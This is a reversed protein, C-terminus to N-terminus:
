QEGRMNVNINGSSYITSSIYPKVNYQRYLRNYIFDAERQAEIGRYADFIGQRKADLKSLNIGLQKKIQNKADESNGYYSNIKVVNNITGINIDNYKTENTLMQQHRNWITKLVNSLRANSSQLIRKREDPNKVNALDELFAADQENVMKSFQHINERGTMNYYSKDGSLFKIKEIEDHVKTESKYESSTSVRDLLMNIPRQITGLKSLTGLMNFSANSNMYIENAYSNFRGASLLNNASYNYFPEVFSSIPSDWDRFFPSQVTEVSWESYVSKNGFIKEIAIDSPTNKFKKFPTYFVSALNVNKRRYGSNNTNLKNNVLNSDIRFFDGDKDIGVSYTADNSIQFNYTQGVKFSVDLENMLRLAKRRGYRSTLENYDEQVTDLKYRKGGSMFEYPSLKKDIKLSINTVDEVRKFNEIYDRKGYENAYGLSEFYYAKEREDFTNIKNNMVQKLEEFQASGPAIMSLVRLKKLDENQVKQSKDFTTGPLIYNGFDWSLYPNNGKKFYEPFWDPLKQELPNINIMGLANPDDVLRRIPETMGFLDGLQLRDYKSYTGIDLDISSLNIENNYPNTAGFINETAKTVGYGAIGAFTKLDEAADFFAKVFKNPENFEIYKPSSPDNPNYKPNIMLNKDVRWKDEGIYQTPKIVEGVTANILGGFVPLEGFLQETKPYVAGYKEFAEREEKYPDLIYWPYKTIALDQRFFKEIKNSYIGSDKHQAIYLLHPRYQRFEEGEASQRGATFWWRNNKVEIPKGNFYIDIMESPSTLLDLSNGITNNIAGPLANDIGRLLPLVGTIDLAYQLGVRGAAITKAATGSIGNGIIPVEDPIFADSASDIALAGTGIALLPLYRYKVFNKMQHYATKGLQQEPIREVGIFELANQLQNIPTKALINFHSDLHDIDFEVKKRKLVIKDTVADIKYQPANRKKMQEQITKKYNYYHTYEAEFKTSSAYSDDMIKYISKKLESLIKKFSLNQLNMKKIMVSSSISEDKTYAVSNYSSIVKFLNKEDVIQKGLLKDEVFLMLENDLRDFPKYSKPTIFKEKKGILTHYLTEVNTMSKLQNIKKNENLFNNDVLYKFPNSDKDISRWGEYLEKTLKNIEYGKVMEYLSNNINKFDRIDSKTFFEDIFNDHLTYQDHLQNLVRKQARESVHFMNESYEKILKIKKKETPDQTANMLLEEGVKYLSSKNDLFLNLSKLAVDDNTTIVDMVSYGNNKRSIVMNSAVMFDLIKKQNNTLNKDLYYAKQIETITNVDINQTKILDTYSKYPLIKSLNEKANGIMISKKIEAGLMEQIKQADRDDFAIKSAINTENLKEALLFKFGQHIEKGTTEMLINEGSLTPIDFDHSNKHLVSYIFPEDKFYGDGPDVMQLGENRSYRFRFPNSHSYSYDSFTQKMSEFVSNETRYKKYRSYLESYSNMQKQKLKHVNYGDNTIDLINKNYVMKVNEEMKIYQTYDFNKITQDNKYYYDQLKKEAIRTGDLFFGQKNYSFGLYENTLINKIRSQSDLLSFPNWLNYQKEYFPLKFSGVTNKEIAGLFKLASISGDLTTEDIINNDVGKKVVNTFAFNKLLSEYKLGLIEDNEINLFDTQSKTARKMYQLLKDDNKYDRLKSSIEEFSIYEDNKYYKDVVNGFGNDKLYNVFLREREESPLNKTSSKADLMENFNYALRNLPKSFNANDEIIKSIDATVLNTNKDLYSYNGLIDSFFSNSEIRQYKKYLKFQDVAEELEVHKSKAGGFFFRSIIADAKEKIFGTSDVTSSFKIQEKADNILSDLKTLPINSFNQLYNQYVRNNNITEFSKEIGNTFLFSAGSGITQLSAKGYTTIFNVISSFANEEASESSAKLKNIEYLKQSFVEGFKTKLNLQTLNFNNVFNDTKTAYNSFKKYVNPDFKALESAYKIGSSLGFISGLVVADKSYDEDKSLLMTGAIVTGTKLIESNKSNKFLLKSAVTLLGANIFKSVYTQTEYTHQEKQKDEM